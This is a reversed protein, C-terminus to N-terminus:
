DEEVKARIAKVDEKIEKLASAFSDTKTEVTALRVQANVSEGELQRVKGTLEDHKSRLSWGLIGLVTSVGLLILKELDM